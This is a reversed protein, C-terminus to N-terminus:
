KKYKLQLTLCNKADDRKVSLTKLTVDTYDVVSYSGVDTSYTEGYTTLEGVTSTQGAANNIFNKITVFGYANLM